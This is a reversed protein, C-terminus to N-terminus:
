ATAPRYRDIRDMVYVRVRELVGGDFSAFGLPVPYGTTAGIPAHVVAVVAVYPVLLIEMAPSFETVDSSRVEDFTREVYRPPKGAFLCVTKIDPQDAAPPGQAIKRRILSLAERQLTTAAWNQTQPAVSLIFDPTERKDRLGYDLVALLREINQQLCPSGVIPITKRDIRPEGARGVAERWYRNVSLGARTTFDKLFEPAFEILNQYALSANLQNASNKMDEIFLAASSEIQQRDSIEHDPRWLTLDIEAAAPNSAQAYARIRVPIQFRDGAIVRDISYLDRRQLRERDRREALERFFHRFRDPIREVIKGIGAADEIPLEPLCLELPDLSKPQQPAISLFDFGISRQRGEVSFISPEKEGERFLSDGATTLWLRGSRREIYGPGLAEELVYAMEGRSYGFFIAADDEAIGPISKSLRLLFELNPSVHGLVAVKYAVEYKRCPLLAEYEGIEVRRDEESPVLEDGKLRLIPRSFTGM